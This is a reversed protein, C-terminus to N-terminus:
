AQQALVDQRQAEYWEEASMEDPFSGRETMYVTDLFHEVDQGGLTTPAHFIGTPNGYNYFRDQNSHGGVPYLRNDVAFYRIEHNRTLMEGPMGESDQVTYVRNDMLDTYLDALGQTDLSTTLMQRALALRANKRHLNTSVSDFEEIIDSTYWYKGVIYHTTSKDTDDATRIRSDFLRQAGTELVFDDGACDDTQNNCGVIEETDYVRYVVTSQPIGDVVIKGEAMVIERNVKTVKFMRDGIGDKNMESVISSFEAFQATSLHRNLTTEFSSTFDYDGTQADHYSLDGEALQWIFLAMLDEQSRSLLM